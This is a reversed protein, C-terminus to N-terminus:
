EHRKGQGPSQVPKNVSRFHWAFLIWGSFITGLLIYALLDAQALNARVALFFGISLFVAVIWSFVTLEFLLKSKKAQVVSTSIAQVKRDGKRKDISLILPKSRTQTNM